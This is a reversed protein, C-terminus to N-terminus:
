DITMQGWGSADPFQIKDGESSKTIISVSNSLWQFFQVFNLGKLKMPPTQPHAIKKLIEMNADQVGIPFFMFKKDNVYEMIEFSLGEVDQDDDPTGDTILFIFPRYYSQGTQKYWNKRAEVKDIGSRVADVLKTTGQARLMPMIIKDILAPEQICKIRSEFTIVSIELRQSAIEDNRVQAHFEDLGRNLENIRSGHMSGSVDLVLVCLCKQEYNEPIEAIFDDAAM